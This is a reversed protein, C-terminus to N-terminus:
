VTGPDLRKESSALWRIADQRDYFMEIHVGNLAARMIFFLLTTALSLSQPLVIAAKHIPHNLIERIRAAILYLDSLGPLNEVQSCEVLHNKIDHQHALGSRAALADLVESTCVRGTYQVEIFRNGDPLTATFAM